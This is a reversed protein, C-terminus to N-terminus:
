IEKLHVIPYTVKNSSIYLLRSAMSEILQANKPSERDSKVSLTANTIDERSTISCDIALILFFPLEIECIDFNFFAFLTENEIRFIECSLKIHVHMFKTLQTQKKAKWKENKLIIKFMIQQSIMVYM